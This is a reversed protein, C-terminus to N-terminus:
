YEETECLMSAAAAPDTKPNKRFTKSRLFKLPIRVNPGVEQFNALRKTNNKL